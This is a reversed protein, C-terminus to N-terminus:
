EDGLIMLREVGEDGAVNVVGGVGGIEGLFDEDLDEAADAAEVAVGAEAGPEVANSKAFGGVLATPPGTVFTLLDGDVGAVVGVCVCFAVREAEAGGEGIGVVGGVILDDLVLGALTEFVGEALERLGESGDDDEAFDFAEGVFLDGLDEVEVEAGDFGTEGATAGCEAIQEYRLLFRGGM